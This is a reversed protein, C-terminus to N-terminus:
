TKKDVKQRKKILEPFLKVKMRYKMQKVSDWEIDKKKESLLWLWVNEVKMNEKFLKIAIETKLEDFGADRCRKIFEDREISGIKEVFNQYFYIKIPSYEGNKDRTKIYFCQNLNDFSLRTENPKIEIKEFETLSEVYSINSKIKPELNSKSIPIM